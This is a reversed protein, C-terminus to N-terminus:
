RHGRIQTSHKGVIGNCWCMTLINNNINKQHINRILQSSNRSISYYKFGSVIADVSQIAVMSNVPIDLPTPKMRNSRRNSASFAISFSFPDIEGPEVSFIVTLNALVGFLLLAAPPMGMARAADYRDGTLCTSPGICWAAPLNLYHDKDM